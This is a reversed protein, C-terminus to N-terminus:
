KLVVPELVLANPGDPPAGTRPATSVDLRAGSQPEYVGIVIWYTGPPLNPQVPVQLAASLYSGPRWASTQERAGGPPVDVAGVRAGNTDLVHVFLMYDALIAARAQWHVTL